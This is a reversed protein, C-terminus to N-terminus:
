VSGTFTCAHLDLNLPLFASQTCDIYKVKTGAVYHMCSRAQPKLLRFDKWECMVAQLHTM